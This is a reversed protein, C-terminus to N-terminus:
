NLNLVSPFLIKSLIFFNQFFIMYSQLEKNDNNQKKEKEEIAGKEPNYVINLDLDLNLILYFVFIVYKKFYKLGNNTILLQGITIKIIFSAFDNIYDKIIIDTNEITKNM